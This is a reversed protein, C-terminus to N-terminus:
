HTREPSSEWSPVGGSVCALFNEVDVAVWEVPAFTGGDVEGIEPFNVPVFLFGIFLEAVITVPVDVEDGLVDHVTSFKDLNEELGSDRTVEFPLTFM